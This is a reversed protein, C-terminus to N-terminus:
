SIRRICNMIRVEDKASFSSWSENLCPEVAREQTLEIATHLLLSRAAEPAPFPDTRRQSISLSDLPMRGKNSSGRTFDRYSYKGSQQILKRTKTKVYHYLNGQNAM